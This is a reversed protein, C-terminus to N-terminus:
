EDRTFISTETITTAGACPSVFKRASFGALYVIAKQLYYTRDSNDLILLGGQRVKSAAHKICAPRSRGDILVIDFHREPFGDIQSVYQKYHVQAQVYEDSVYDDPAACDVEDVSRIDPSPEVLRYDLSLEANTLKRVQEFWVPDHEVSVCKAGKSLWYLTSGGSGYEFILKDKFTLSNLFDVADFTLWPQKHTILYNAQLSAIWRPLHRRNVRDSALKKAFRLQAILQDNIM